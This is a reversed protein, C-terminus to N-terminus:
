LLALMGGPPDILSTDQRADLTPTTTGTYSDKYDIHIRGASAAGGSFGGGSATTGASANLLNTGLTATQCKILISGGAGAGGHSANGTSSIIGAGGKVEVAGSVTVIKSVIIIIGGGSGGGGTQISTNGDAVAGGGGGGGMFLTTLGANGVSSGGTGPTGGGTSGSGGSSSHGGGAGTSATSSGTSAGGGGNGNAGTGTGRLGVSGDGYQSASSSGDSKHSNGGRFGGVSAGLGGPTAASTGQGGNVKTTGSITTTGNCFFALIGGTTGNWDKGSYTSSVTASTYQPMVYVQAGPNTYTNMLPYITTITGSTYSAIKNFEYVGVGTGYTQYILILLGASFSANTATLTNTSATGSCASDIPTEQTVGGISGAGNSGSGYGELWSSTDDSRFIRQGM